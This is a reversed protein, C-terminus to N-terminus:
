ATALHSPFIAAAGAATAAVCLCVCRFTPLMNICLCSGCVGICCFLYMTVLTSSCFFGYYVMPV